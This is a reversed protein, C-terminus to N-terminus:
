DEKCYCRVTGSVLWTVALSDVDTDWEPIVNLDANWDYHSAVGQIDLETFVCGIATEICDASHENRDASTRPPSTRSGCCREGRNTM